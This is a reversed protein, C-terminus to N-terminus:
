ICHDLSRKSVQSECAIPSVGVNKWLNKIVLIEFYPYLVPSSVTQLRHVLSLISSNIMSYTTQPSWYCRKPVLKGRWWALFWTTPLLGIIRYSHTGGLERKMPLLMNWCGYVKLLCCWDL